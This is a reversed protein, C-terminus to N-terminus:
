LPPRHSHAGTSWPPVEEVVDPVMLGSPLLRRHVPCSSQRALLVIVLSVCAPTPPGICPILTSIEPTSASARTPSGTVHQQTKGPSATQRLSRRHDM